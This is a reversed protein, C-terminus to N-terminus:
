PAADDAFEADASLVTLWDQEQEAVLMEGVAVLTGCLAPLLHRGRLWRSARISRGLLRRHQHGAPQQKGPFCCDGGM